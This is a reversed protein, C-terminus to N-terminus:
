PRAALVDARGVELRRELGDREDALRHGDAVVPREHGRQHHEVGLHRRHPGAAVADLGPRQGLQGAFGSTTASISAPSASTIARNLLASRTLFTVTSPSSHSGSVSRSVGVDFSLRRPTSRGSRRRSRLETSTVHGEAVGAGGRVHAHGVAGREVVRQGAGGVEADDGVLVVELEHRQGGDTGALVIRGAPEGAHGACVTGPARPRPRVRGAGVVLHDRQPPALLALRGVDAAVAGDDLEAMGARRDSAIPVVRQDALQDLDEVGALRDVDVGVVQGVLVLGM